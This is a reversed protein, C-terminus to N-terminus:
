SMSLALQGLDAGRMSEVEWHQLRCGSINSILQFDMPFCSTKQRLDLSCSECNSSMGSPGSFKGSVWHTMLGSLCPTTLLFRLCASM